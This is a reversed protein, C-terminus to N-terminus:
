PSVGPEAPWAVAFVRQRFHEWRARDDPDASVAWAAIFREVEPVSLATMRARRPGLRWPAWELVLLAARLTSLAADPLGLVAEEFERVARHLPEDADEAVPLLVRLLRTVIELELADFPDRVGAVARRDIRRAAWVALAPPRASGHVRKAPQGAQAMTGVLGAIGRRAWAGVDLSARPCATRRLSGFARLASGDDRDCATSVTRMSGRPRGRCM